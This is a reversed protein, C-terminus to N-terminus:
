KVIETAVGDIVIFYVGSALGSVDVTNKAGAIVTVGLVNVVNATGEFSYVSGTKAIKVAQAAVIPADVTGFTLPKPNTVEDATGAALEDGITIKEILVSFQKDHYDCSPGDNLIIKFGIINKADLTIDYKDGTFPSNGTGGMASNPMFGFLGPEASAASAGYGRGNSCAFWSADYGDSFSQQAADNLAADGTGQYGVEGLDELGAWDKSATWYFTANHFQGDNPLTKGGIIRKASHGGTSRGNVDFLDMRLNASDAADLDILKYRVTIIRTSTDSLDLTVGLVSDKKTAWATSNYFPNFSAPATSAKTIWYNFVYDGWNAGSAATRDFDLRLAKETVDFYTKLTTAASGQLEFTKNIFGNATKTPAISSDTYDLTILKVNQTAHFKAKWSDVVAVISDAPTMATQAFMAVGLMSGAVTLLVKKM